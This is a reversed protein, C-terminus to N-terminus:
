LRQGEHVRILRGSTSWEKVCQFVPLNLQKLKRLGEDTIKGVPKGWLDRRDQEDCNVIFHHVDALSVPGWVQAELYNNFALMGPAKESKFRLTRVASKNSASSSDGMTFTARNKMEDNFVALVNGYGLSLGDKSAFEGSANLPHDDPSGAQLSFYASKPRVEISVEPPCATELYYGLFKYESDLRGRAYTGCNHNIQFTNLLGKAAVSDIITESFALQIETDNFYDYAARSVKLNGPLEDEIFKKYVITLAIQKSSYKKYVGAPVTEGIKLNMIEPVPAPPTFEAFISVLPAVDSDVSSLKREGVSTFACSSLSLALFGILLAKHM